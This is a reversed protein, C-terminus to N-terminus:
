PVDLAIPVWIRILTRIEPHLPQQLESLAARLNDLEAGWALLRSRKELFRGSNGQWRFLMWAMLALKTQPADARPEGFMHPQLSKRTPIRGLHSDDLWCAKVRMQLFRYDPNDTLYFYGNQWATFTNQMQRAFGSSRGDPQGVAEEESENEPATEVAMGNDSDSGRACSGLSSDADSLFSEASAEASNESSGSRGRSRSGSSRGSSSNDSGTSCNKNRPAKSAVILQASYPIIWFLGPGFRAMTSLKFVQVDPNVFTDPLVELLPRLCDGLDITHQVM